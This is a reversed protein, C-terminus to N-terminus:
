ITDLIPDNEHWLWQKYLVSSVFHLILLQNIIIAHFEPYIINNRSTTFIEHSLASYFIGNRPYWIGIISKMALLSFSCNTLLLLVYILVHYYSDIWLICFIYRKLVEFLNEEVVLIIASSAAICLAKQWVEIYSQRM